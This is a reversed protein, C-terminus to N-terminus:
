LGDDVVLAGVKRRDGPARVLLRVDRAFSQAAALYVAQAATVRLTASVKARKDEEADPPRGRPSSRSTRSRSARRAATATTASPPSSCTWARAPWSPRASGTADIDVAREGRQSRRRPRRHAASSCTARDGAGGKAVPVALKQGALAAAFAPEGPPAYRAPLERVGLDRSSAADARRASRRARGRGRRDTRAAGRAGGRATGHAHRLAHGLILALGLLVAARRRRTVRRRARPRRAHRADPARRADSPAAHLRGGHHEAIAAAIALGHGRRGRRARATATLASVSAPLGPGDDAVEIRVRDGTARVRVRVVGGGHEAANGVLNACAQAIRLPDAFVMARHRPRATPVRPAVRAPARRRSRRECADRRRPRARRPAAGARPEAARSRPRATVILPARRMPATARPWARWAPRLRRRARRPRRARPETRRAAARRRPPSTTSRAAPAARARARDRGARAPEGGLGHLGLQVAFLPGRLEHRRARSSCSAGTPACTCRSSPSADAGLELAVVIMDGRERGPRRGAPLRRGVRQRRVADGQARLKQACGAPTRTSRARRRRRARFGWVDRLLEEKTFVRTPALALTRLLAFEKAALEVRQARAATAARAAPDIELEGVRLLGRQVRPRSRRLVAAIRLRLEGYAFPKVCTDDAGREFGRVRDLESACGSLM